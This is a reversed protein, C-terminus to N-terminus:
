NTLILLKFEFPDFKEKLDPILKKGSKLYYPIMNDYREQLAGEPFLKEKLKKIQNINLEQKQKESRLLKNELNKLANKVKQLEADVSAKLTIDAANTKESIEDFVMIIKKAQEDLSLDLGEIESVFKKVLVDTDLFLDNITFGLKHIQLNIKEDTLLAFNRPLLIPFSIKHYDFMRKFELWYAIEGPGGVYALNPLIKEQYVPRLVVNPSFREPHNKLENLLEEKTFIISTNNIKFTDRKDAALSSDIYEIRERLNDLMYFCNIERPNVLTKLGANKFESITENVLKHNTGNFIDDRIIESFESKLRADDADLIVLGYDAFLHHVLYRTADALTSNKLYAENFLQVLEKSNESDGLITRLEDIISGLSNTHLKGVAGKAEDKNWVIKKGFLNISQIEEFDHDESAMWYIPVFNYNPYKKKLAEALNITSIIKYIFYIPGTFLCLQHGTCVTFTNKNLLLEINKKQLDCDSIKSYQENLASVLLPRNTNEKSKDDIADLFSEIKPAYSYYKRLTDDGKIYDLFLKSFQRTESLNIKSNKYTM